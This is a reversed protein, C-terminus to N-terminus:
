IGPKMTLLWIAVPEILKRKLKSKCAQGTTKQPLPINKISLLMGELNIPKSVILVIGDEKAIQQAEEYPPLEDLLIYVENYDIHSKSRITYNVIDEPSGGRAKKPTITFNTKRNHYLRKLHKLFEKDDSGEGVILRTKQGRDKNIFSM